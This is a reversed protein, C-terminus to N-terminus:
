EIEMIKGVNKSIVNTKSLLNEDIKRNWAINKGMERWMKEM